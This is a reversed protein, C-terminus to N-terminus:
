NYCKFCAAIITAFLQKDLVVNVLWFLRHISVHIHNLDELLLSLSLSGLSFELSSVTHTLSFESFKYWSSLPSFSSLLSLLLYFIVWSVLSIRMERSVSIDVVSQALFFASSTHFLPRRCSIIAKGFGDWYKTEIKHTPDPQKSSWLFVYCDIRGCLRHICAWICIVPWICNSRM